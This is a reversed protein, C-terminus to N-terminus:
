ALAMTKFNEGNKVRIKVYLKSAGRESFKKILEKIKDKKAYGIGYKISLCVNM